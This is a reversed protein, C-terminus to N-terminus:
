TFIVNPTRADTTRFIGLSELAWGPHLPEANLLSGIALPEYKKGRLCLLSVVVKVVHDVELDSAVVAREKHVPVAVAGTRQGEHKGVSLSSELYILNKLVLM